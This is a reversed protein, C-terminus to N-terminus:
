WPLLILSQVVERRRAKDEPVKFITIAFHCTVHLNRRPPAATAALLMFGREGLYSRIQAILMGVADPAPAADDLWRAGRRDLLPSFPGLRREAFVSGEGRLQLVSAINAAFATIRDGSFPLTAFEATVVQLLAQRSHQIASPLFVANAAFDHLDEAWHAPQGGAGMFIDADSAFVLLRFESFLAAIDRTEFADHLFEPSVCANPDRLFCFVHLQVGYARLQDIRELLLQALYNRARAM